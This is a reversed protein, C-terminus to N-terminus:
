PDGSVSGLSAPGESPTVPCQPDPQFPDNYVAYAICSAGGSCVEPAKVCFYCDRCKGQVFKDKQRLKWLLPHQWIQSLDQTLINGITIPLRRCPYVDGTETVNIYSHIACCRSGNKTLAEPTSPDSYIVPWDCRSRAIHPRPPSESSIADFDDSLKRFLTYVQEPSLMHQFLDKGRGWPVLRTVTLVDAQLVRALDTMKFADHYNKKHVVYHIHTEIPTSALLKLAETAKDFSGTGRIADHTEACAGDISIQIYQLAPYDTLADVMDSTLNIGNSLLAVQTGSKQTEIYDLIQWFHHHLTPEGGTLWLIPTRKWRRCFGLLREIVSKVQSLPMDKHSESEDYCHTCRLNCRSTIEFQMTFPHGSIDSGPAEVFSAPEDM